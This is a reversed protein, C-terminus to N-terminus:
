MELSMGLAGELGDVSVLVAEAKGSLRAASSNQSAVRAILGCRTPFVRKPDSAPQRPALLPVVPDDIADVFGRSDNESM